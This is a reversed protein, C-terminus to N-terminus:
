SSLSAPPIGYSQSRFLTKHEHAWNGLTILYREDFLETLTRAWDHRIAATNEGADGVLAPLHPTLDYGRRKRFEAMFDSTWDANYVELSDSFIAYPPTAALAALMPEGANKLHTEIAAGADYDLVFGEAGVAARKVM